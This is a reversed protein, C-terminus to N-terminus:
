DVFLASIEDPSLAGAQVVAHSIECIAMENKQKPDGGAYCPMTPLSGNFNAEGVKKGDMWFSFESGSKVLAATVWQNVPFPPTKITFRRKGGTFLQVGRVATIKMFETQAGGIRNGLLVAGPPNGPLVKVRFSWAYDDDPGLAPTRPLVEFTKGDFRQKGVFPAGAALPEPSAAEERSYGRIFSENKERLTNLVPAYEPDNAFNQLQDPDRQLDHLFECPPDQRDYCAYVYRDNRVGSWAHIVDWMQHHEHFAEGRWDQPADGELLPVLSRGQYADPVAVGALELITSPLDLNLAPSEIIEGRQGPARRPDYVILPVRLSEEFHSWKGALGREGRYYGNDATYIIITNEALGREELTDLVRQIIRDLGTIMRYRARMNVDYKEPTDWRWHWRTRNMSTKMFDPLAEFIAPDDLRPQPPTIEEYMGDVAKPWPFHGIGPRHDNDEAHAINFSMYLFFPEEKPQQKLFDVSRDGMIEDCHRTSGDPMKKFYPNRHIHKWDDFMRSFAEGTGSEFDTHNKGYYGTRYGAQRLLNPFCIAEDAPTIPRSEPNGPAFGHSRQTLGTFITARSVMCIATTVTMNQFRVGQGALRDLTPTQLFPEGECGLEDNRQDDALIFLINPREAQALASAACLMVMLPLCSMWKKM